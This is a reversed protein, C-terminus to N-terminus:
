TSAISVRDEEPDSSKLSGIFESRSMLAFRFNFGITFILM